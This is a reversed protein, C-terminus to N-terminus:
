NREKLAVIQKEIAEIRDLTLDPPGKRAYLGDMEEGDVKKSGGEDSESSESAVPMDNKMEKIFTWINAIEM